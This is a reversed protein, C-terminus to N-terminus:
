DERRLRAEGDCWRDLQMVLQRSVEARCMACQFTWHQEKLRHVVLQSSCKHCVSEGYNVAFEIVCDTSVFEVKATTGLSISKEDQREYSM